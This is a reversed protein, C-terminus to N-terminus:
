SIGLRRLFADPSPERGLFARVHEIADRSSGTALIERRYRRGTRPSLVGEAAFRSFMDDGYVRAWLYGYYGADYGGMLHGFGAPFRTGEHFPLLTTQWAWRYAADPTPPREGHLALDLRGLFVQRLTKLAVNQDRAAVLRRVLDEPIPEGTVHHRAFRGLVEPEWMWNEMIQSPAEVFDMETDYGSFRPHDVETLGFHLAHGFEHFLTVAEGHELLSPVTKTPATFNAVIAAAPPRYTGDDRRHGRVLPFCAAHGYKGERPFLDFYVYARPRPSGADRIEYVVVDEHWVSADPVPRYELGFVEGTVSFLGDLVRELPFYAAVETPDIGHERRRQLTDYYAWDWPQLTAGPVDEELLRELAAKEEHARRTLAPVLREYFAAVGPPDAMRVEMAHDAWTRHGLLRAIRSRVRVAETLLETNEDGARNWFRRQLERRLERHRAQEMFPLYDPYAMTVRFTGPASGPTLREVYRDPLGALEERSVEIADEWADLNRAFATELEVLRARLARLEAQAETPLEHGARRLDRLWFELARRRLGTLAAAEGTAAYARIAQALAERFVVDAGWKELREGAASARGRVEPDPHVRALFAGSGYADGLLLGVRDLPAMTNAYTREGRHREVSEVLREADALAGDVTADIREADLGHYTPLM